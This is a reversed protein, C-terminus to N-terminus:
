PNLTRQPSSVLHAHESREGPVEKVLKTCICVPAVQYCYPKINSYPMGLIENVAFPLLSAPSLGIM